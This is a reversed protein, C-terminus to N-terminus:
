GVATTMMGGLEDRVRRVAEGAGDPAGLTAMGITRDGRRYAWTGGGRRADLTLIADAGTPFGAVELRAGFADTAHDPVRVPAVPAGLARAAAARATDVVFSAAGSRVPGVGPLEVSSGAGALVIRPDPAVALGRVAGAASSGTALVILDGEVLGDAALRVAARRGPARIGSVRHATRVEVGSAAARAAVHTGLEPGLAPLVTPAADLLVVELGISRLSAAAEIGRWGAGVVVARGGEALAQERLTRVESPRSLRFVAPGEAARSAGPETAVILRHFRLDGHGRLTLTRAAPEIGTVRAGVVLDISRRGYDAPRAVLLADAEIEGRLFPGPLLAGRVPLTPEETVLIVRGTYGLERLEFAATAAAVGDGIVIIPDRSPHSM